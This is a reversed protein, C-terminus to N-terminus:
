AINAGMKRTADIRARIGKSRSSVTTPGDIGKTHFYIGLYKTSSESSIRQGYITPALSEIGLFICKAPNFRM